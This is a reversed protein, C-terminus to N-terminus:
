LLWVRFMCFSPNICFVVAWNLEKGLSFSLSYECPNWLHFLQLNRFLCVFDPEPIGILLVYFSTQPSRHSSQMVKVMGKGAIDECKCEFVANPFLCQTPHLGLGVWLSHKKLNVSSFPLFYCTSDVYKMLKCRYFVEQSLPSSQDKPRHLLIYLLTDCFEMQQSYQSHSTDSVCCAFRKIDHKQELM